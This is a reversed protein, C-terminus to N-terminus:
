VILKRNRAEDIVSTINKVNFKKNMNKCHFDVANLKSGLIKATEKRSHGKALLSLVQLESITLLSKKPSNLNLLDLFDPVKDGLVRNGELVINIASVLEKKQCYKILIADAGNIWTNYLVTPDLEGTLAIVKKEPFQKKIMLCFEVGSVEPMILDLLVIKALSRKLKPLAEKVSTASGTVKIKDDGNSFVSKIGDIFVPHDDIVFINIM